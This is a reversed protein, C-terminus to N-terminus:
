ILNLNFVHVFVYLICLIHLFVTNECVERGMRNMLLFTVGRQTLPFRFHAGGPQGVWGISRTILANSLSSNLLMLLIPLSTHSFVTHKVCKVCTIVTNKCM